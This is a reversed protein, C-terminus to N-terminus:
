ATQTTNERRCKSKNYDAYNFNRVFFGAIYEKPYPYSYLDLKIDKQQGFAVWIGPETELVKIEFTGKDDVFRGYKFIDNESNLSVEFEKLSNLPFFKSYKGWQEGSFLIMLLDIPIAFLMMVSYATEGTNQWPIILLPIFPFCIVGIWFLTKATQLYEKLTTKKAEKLFPNKRWDRNKM